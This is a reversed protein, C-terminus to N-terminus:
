GKASGDTTQHIESLLQAYCTNLEVQEAETAPSHDDVISQFRHELARARSSLEDCGFTAGAGSLSHVERYFAKCADQAWETDALARWADAIRQERLPLEAIFSARITALQTELAEMDVM